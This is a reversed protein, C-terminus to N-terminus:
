CARKLRRIRINYSETARSSIRPRAARRMYLYTSAHQKHSHYLAAVCMIIPMWARVYFMVMMMDYTHTHTHTEATRASSVLRLIARSERTTFADFLRVYARVFCRFSSSVFIYEAYRIGAYNNCESGHRAAVAGLLLLWTTM